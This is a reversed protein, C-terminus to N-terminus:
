RCFLDRGCYGAEIHTALWERVADSLKYQEKTKCTLVIRPVHVLGTGHLNPPKRDCVECEKVQIWSAVMMLKERLLLKIQPELKNLRRYHM